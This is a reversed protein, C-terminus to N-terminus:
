KFLLVSPIKKPDALRLCQYGIGALGQFLGMSQLEGNASVIMSYSKNKSARKLFWDARRKAEILLNPQNHQISAEILTDIRGATGCCLHDFGSVDEKLLSNIGHEVDKESSKAKFGLRALAIGAGGHCWNSLYGTPEFRLDPWNKEKKSFHHNEFQIAEQAAELYKKKKTVKYLQNLAYAFGAAGHSFGTLSHDLGLIRWARYGSDTKVRTKLLHDGCLIAKNISKTTPLALLGIIAGASGTEVDLVQDDEILKPTIADVLAAVEKKLQPEKLYQSMKVFSYIIGSVGGCVGMGIRRALASSASPQKLAKRISKITSLAFEKYEKRSTASYLSAFFLAIGCRGDYLNEVVPQVQMKETQPNFGLGIWSVSGDGDSISESMIQQAIKEAEVLYEQESYLHKGNLSPKKHTKKRKKNLPDFFRSYLTGKIFKTQLALDKESARKLGAQVRKLSPTQFFGSVVKKGDSFLGTGNTEGYFCPIDGRELSMREAEYAALLPKQGKKNGIAILTRTFVDIEISQDVGNRLLDVDSSRLRLQAYVNTPRYIYRTFCNKLKKLPGKELEARKSAMLQYMAEFGALFQSQYKEVSVKKGKLVPLHETMDLITEEKEVYMQDTNIKKWTAYRFGTPQAKSPALPSIDYCKGEKAPIWTPLLTTRMVSQDIINGAMFLSSKKKDTENWDLASHQLMSEMDILVPDEGLAVINEAHCDTGDMFYVLNLLMGMKTYYRKVQDESRCSKTEAFEIWGYQSRNLVKLVKMKFPAGNQNLWDIVNLFGAETKLNKPKYILKFGSSFKLSVVTRGEHHPDSMGLGVRTLKGLAQGQNFQKQIVNLDKKLRQIFEKVQVIWQETITVLMRALVPYEQYFSIFGEESLLQKVFSKYEKQSSKEDRNLLQQFMFLPNGQSLGSQFKFYLPKTALASLRAMLYREFDIWVEKAIKPDKKLPKIQKQAYVLFPSLVEEFAIPHKKQLLPAVSRFDKIQAIKQFAKLWKPAKKKPNWEVEGLYPSVKKPNLNNMKLRYIFGAQNEDGTVIQRWHNLRKNITEKNSKSPVPLVDGNLRELLTTANAAIQIFNSKERPM